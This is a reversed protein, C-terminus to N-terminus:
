REPALRSVDFMAVTKSNYNTLVLTRGDRTVRLERPFAGTPITGLVADSGRQIRSADILTLTPSARSAAFRNSNTVIIWGGDRVVAVGIPTDGVPVRGLLAHATDTLMKGTDFALLSNDTRATVYAVDGLPSLVLRVPNCGAEVAGVVARTPNTTARAVDIVLVAGKAYPAPQRLTDSGPARCVAPWGFESPAIQSTTYLLKYDPSFTLAVPARGVPIQGVVAQSSFGGQRARTLDVVSIARTSEDSLFLWRDDPTINAYIRGALPADTMYGLVPTARGSILQQVDVFAVRDDSAVVLLRGDRTLAMGHPSGELQVTRVVKSENEMRAIVALGGPPAGAEPPRRPDGPEVPGVLSVLIFCGDHTPLAQFPRGPVGVLAVPTAGSPACAPQSPATRSCAISAAVALQFATASIRFSRPCGSPVLRQGPLTEHKHNM